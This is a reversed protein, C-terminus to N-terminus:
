SRDTPAFARLEDQTVVAPLMLHGNVLSSTPKPGRTIEVFNCVVPRRLVPRYLSCLAYSNLTFRILSLESM